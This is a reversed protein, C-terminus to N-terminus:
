AGILREVRARQDDDLYPPRGAATNSAARDPKSTAPIAVTVRHDALVWKLLAQAWTQVGLARLEAAPPERRVLAGEGFPRMVVVGIGLEEALPLIRREVERQLPNYPVQVASIRGSRMVAELEDLHAASYHTAGIAGVRGDAQLRELLDLRARWRVLNHVQYLEVRGGYWRLAREAQREAEADDPTWLKTAVFAEDRRDGLNDALAREAAGYMPSSDFVTAGADLAAAVVDPRGGPLDLVQWTGLGVVPVRPGGAGLPRTELATPEDEVRQEDRERMADLVHGLDPRPREPM